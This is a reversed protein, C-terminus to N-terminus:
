GGTSTIAIAASMAGFVITAYFLRGTIQPNAEKRMALIAGTSGCLVAIFLLFSAATNM